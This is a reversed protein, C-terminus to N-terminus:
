QTQKRGAKRRRDSEPAEVSRDFTRKGTHMEIGAISRATRLLADQSQGLRMRLDGSPARMGALDTKPSGTRHPNRRVQANGGVNERCEVRKM